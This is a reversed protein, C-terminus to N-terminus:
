QMQGVCTSASPFQRELQAGPHDSCFPAQTQLPPTSEEPFQTIQGAPCSKTPLAQTHM